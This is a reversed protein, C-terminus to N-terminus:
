RRLEPGGSSLAAALRLGQCVVWSSDAASYTALAADIMEDPDLMALARVDVSVAEAETEGEVVAPADEAVLEALAHAVDEVTIELGLIQGCADVLEEANVAAPQNVATGDRRGVAHEGHERQLTLLLQAGFSMAWLTGMKECSGVVADILGSPDAEFSKLARVVGRAPAEAGAEVSATIFAAFARAIDQEGVPRALMSSMAIALMDGPPGLQDPERRTVTHEAGSRANAM